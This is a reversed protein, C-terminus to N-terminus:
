DSEAPRDAEQPLDDILVVAEGEIAREGDEDVVRTSLRYREGGIAEVVECVATVTEGIAVPGQYSLDQALYITLGPLRALAASITGGVLTGHAIRGGFRTGAAFTEDLHLRNTDGSAEAFGRVDADSLPKRFRVVDGVDVTDPDGEYDFEWDPDEYATEPSAADTHISATNPDGLTLRPLYYSLDTTTVVGILEGESGNGERGRSDGGDRGDEGDAVVLKKIGHDRLLSAARGIPEDAGITILPSSLCARATISEPASGEALVDVLDTETVIGIPQGNPEEDRVVLSGVEAERLRTAIETATADPAVTEVGRHMVAEVRIPVLM